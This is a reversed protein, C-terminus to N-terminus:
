LLCKPTKEEIKDILEDIDINNYLEFWNDENVGNENVGILDRCNKYLSNEVSIAREMAHDTCYHNKSDRNLKKILSSFIMIVKKNRIDDTDNNDTDNM